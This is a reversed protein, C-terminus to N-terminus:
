LPQLSVPFLANQSSYLEKPFVSFIYFFFPLSPGRVDPQKSGDTSLLFRQIQSCHTHRGWSSHLSMPFTESVSDDKRTQISKNWPYLNQIKRKLATVDLLFNSSSTIREALFTSILFMLSKLIYCMTHVPLCDCSYLRTPGQSFYYNLTGQEFILNFIGYFVHFM